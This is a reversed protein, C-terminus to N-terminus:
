LVTLLYIFGLNQEFEINEGSTCYKIQSSLYSNITAAATTCFSHDRIRSLLWPSLLINRGWSQKCGLAITLSKTIVVRELPLCLISTFIMLLSFSSSSSGQWVWEAHEGDPASRSPLSGYRAQSPNIEAWSLADLSRETFYLAGGYGGLFSLSIRFTRLKKPYITWSREAASM